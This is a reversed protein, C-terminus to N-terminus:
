SPGGLVQSWGGPQLVMRMLLSDRYILSILVDTACRHLVGTTLRGDWSGTTEFSSRLAQFLFWRISNAIELVDRAQSECPRLELGCQIWGHVAKVSLSQLSQHLVIMADSFM